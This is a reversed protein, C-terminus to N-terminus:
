KDTFSWGSTYPDITILPYAPPRLNSKIVDHSIDQECGM